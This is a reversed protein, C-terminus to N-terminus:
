ARRCVGVDAEGIRDALREEGELIAQVAARLLGLSGRCRQALDVRADLRLADDHRNGHGAVCQQVRGLGLGLELLQLLEHVVM